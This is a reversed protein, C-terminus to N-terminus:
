SFFGQWVRGQRRRQHLPHRARPVLGCAAARPGRRRRDHDGIHLRCSARRGPQRGQDGACACARLLQAGAAAAAFGSLRLLLLFFFFSFFFTLSLSGLSLPAAEFRLFSAILNLSVDARTRKGVDGARLLFQSGLDRESVVAPDHLALSKCGSLVVNKAVEAGLGNLGVVLVAAATQRRVAEVGMAGIYRSWRDKVGSDTVDFQRDAGAPAAASAATAAAEDDEAQAVYDAAAALKDPAAAAAVALDAADETGAAQSDSQPMAPEAMTALETRLEEVVSALM